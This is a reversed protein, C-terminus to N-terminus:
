NWCLPRCSFFLSDMVKDEAKGWTVCPIICYKESLEQCQKVRESTIQLPNPWHICGLKSQTRLGQVNSYAIMLLISVITVAILAFAGLRATEKFQM